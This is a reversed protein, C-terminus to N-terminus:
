NEVPIRSASDVVLADVPKQPVELRSVWNGSLLRALTAMPMRPTVIRAAVSPATAGAM